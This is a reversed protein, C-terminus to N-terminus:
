GAGAGVGEVLQRLRPIYSKTWRESIERSSAELRERLKEEDDKPARRPAYAMLGTVYTRGGREVLSNVYYAAIREGGASLEELVLLQEPVVRRVTLFKRYRQPDMRYNDNYQQHFKERIGFSVVSGETADGVICDYQLDDFWLNRDKMVKWTDAVPRDITFKMRFATDGVVEQGVLKITCDCRVSDDPSQYRSLDSVVVTNGERQM